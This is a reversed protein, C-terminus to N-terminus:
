QPLDSTPPSKRRSKLAPAYCRSKLLVYGNQECEGANAAPYEVWCGGNIPLQKRGPCQGKADPRLQEPLPGPPLDQSIAQQASPEQESVPPAAAVTDGLDAPGQDPKGPESAVHEEPSAVEPLVQGGQWAWVALFMGVLMLASGAMVARVRVLPRVTQIPASVKSVGAAEPPVPEAVRASEQSDRKV